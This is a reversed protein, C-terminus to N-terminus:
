CLKNEDKGDLVQIVTFDTDYTMNNTLHCFALFPMEQVQVGDIKVMVSVHEIAEHDGNEFLTKYEIVKSACDAEARINIAPKGIRSSIDVVSFTGSIEEALILDFLEYPEFSDRNGTVNDTGVIMFDDGILKHKNVYAWMLKHLITYYEPAAIIMNHLHEVINERSFGEKLKIDVM